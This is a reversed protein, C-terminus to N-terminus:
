HALIRANLECGSAIPTISAMFDIWLLKEGSLIINPLRPDGHHFGALHLIFLSWVIKFLCDETLDSRMIRKGVPSILITAGGDCIEVFSKVVTAVVGTHHTRELAIAEIQLWSINKSVIKLAAKDGLIEDFVRTFHIVMDKESDIGTIVSAEEVSLVAPGESPSVKVFNSEFELAALCQSGLDAPSLTNEHQNLRQLLERLEKRVAAVVEVMITRVDNSVVDMATFGTPSSEPLVIVVAEAKSRGLGGVADDVELAVNAEFSARDRHPKLGSSAVGKLAASNSLRISTMRLAMQLLLYEPPAQGPYAAVM